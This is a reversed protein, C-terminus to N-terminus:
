PCLVPVLALATMSLLFLAFDGRGFAEPYRHQGLARSTSLLCLIGPATFLAASALCFAITAANPPAGFWGRALVPAASVSRDPREDTPSSM